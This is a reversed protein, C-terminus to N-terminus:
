RLQIPPAEVVASEVYRELRARHAGARYDKRPHLSNHEARPILFGPHGARDSVQQTVRPQIVPRFDPGAHEGVFARSQQLTEKAILALRWGTPLSQPRLVVAM